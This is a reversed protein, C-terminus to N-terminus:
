TNIIILLHLLEQGGELGHANGILLLLHTHTHIHKHTHSLIQTHTYTHM